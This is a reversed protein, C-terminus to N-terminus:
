CGIPVGRFDEQVRQIQKRIKTRPPTGIPASRSGLSLAIVWTREITQWSDLTPDRNPASECVYLRGPGEQLGELADHAKGFAMAKRSTAKGAVVTDFQCTTYPRNKRDMLVQINSIVGALNYAPARNTQTTDSM